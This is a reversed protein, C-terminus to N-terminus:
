TRSEGKITFLRIREDFVNQVIGASQEAEAHKGVNCADGVLLSAPPPLKRMGHLCEISELTM